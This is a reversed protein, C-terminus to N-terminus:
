YFSMYAQLAISEKCATVACLICMKRQNIAHEVPGNLASLACSGTLVVRIPLILKAFEVNM